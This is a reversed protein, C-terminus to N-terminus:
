IVTYYAVYVLAEVIALMSDYLPVIDYRSFLWRTPVLQYRSKRHMPTELPNVYSITEILYPTCLFVRGAPPLASM